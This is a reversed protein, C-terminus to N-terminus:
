KASGARRGRPRLEIGAARLQRAVRNPGMKHLAALEALTAGQEYAEGLVRQEPTVESPLRELGQRRVIEHLTSRHVGLKRAWERVNEGQRYAEAFAATDGPTMRRAQRVIPRSRVTPYEAAIALKRLYPTDVSKTSYAEVLGVWHDINVSAVDAPKVDHRACVPRM